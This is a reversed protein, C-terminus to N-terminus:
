NLLGAAGTDGSQSSYVMAGDLWYNGFRDIAVGNDYMAWGDYQTVLKGGGAGYQPANNPGVGARKAAADDVTKKMSSIALMALLAVGAIMAVDSQKM